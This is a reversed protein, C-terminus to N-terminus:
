ASLSAATAAARGARKAYMQRDAESLWHSVTGAALGEPTACFRGASFDLRWGRGSQAALENQRGVAERLAADLVECQAESCDPLLAVFEDGGLRGVIGAQGLSGRLAEAFAALARDGEAHGHEDNIKKFRDLDILWMSVGEGRERARRALREALTEFGRRNSLGTLEDTTALRLTALEREAMVALDRLMEREDDALSRPRSDILCLTGAKLGGDMALPCGAYFRIRPDGTVLPNDHFREDCAADAVELIDEGLIAHACFATERCTQRSPADLGQMSKFWQRDEDVLSVLAIPVDFLRRALRTLRDFREEPPTDLVNKARLAALREPENEPLPAATM